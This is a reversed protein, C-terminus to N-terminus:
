LIKSKDSKEARYALFSFGIINGINALKILVGYDMFFLAYINFAVYGYVILRNM